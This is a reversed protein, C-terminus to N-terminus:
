LLKGEKYVEKIVDIVSKSDLDQVINKLLSYTNSTVEKCSSVDYQLGKEDPDTGTYLFQRLLKTSAMSFM